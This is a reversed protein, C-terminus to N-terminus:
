TKRDKLGERHADLATLITDRKRLFQRGAWISLGAYVALFLQVGFFVHVFPYHHFSDLWQGVYLVNKIAIFIFAPLLCYVGYVFNRSRVDNSFVFAATCSIAYILLAVGHASPICEIGVEKAFGVGEYYRNVLYAVIRWLADIYLLFIATSVILCPGSYNLFRSIFHTILNIDHESIKVFRCGIRTKAAVKTRSRVDVEVTVGRHSRPLQFHLEFVNPLHSADEITFSAGGASLDNITVKAFLTKNVLVQAAVSTPIRIYARKGKEPQDLNEVL